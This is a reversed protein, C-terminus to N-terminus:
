SCIAAGEDSRFLTLFLSGTCDCSHGFRGRGPSVLSATAERGTIDRVGTNTNTSTYSAWEGFQGVKQCCGDLVSGLKMTSKGLDSFVHGFGGTLGVLERKDVTRQPM